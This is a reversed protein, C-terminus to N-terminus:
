SARRDQAAEWAPLGIHLSLLPAEDTLSALAAAIRGGLRGDPKLGTLEAVERALAGPEPPGLHSRLAAAAVFCLHVPTVGAKQAARAAGILRDQRSVKRPVDRGVRATTDGLAANGFRELIGAVEDTTGAVAPGYQAQVGLRGEEMAGQVAAAIEPDAVAAHIYRYGKLQGLYAATAHGASYIFLKRRYWARFDAAANVAPLCTWDGHLAPGDVTIRCHPEGIVTMPSGRDAAFRHAVVRDVVAGSFGHSIRTGVRAAVEMRLYAASDERNEFMIVDVPRQAAALGQALLDIIDPLRDAGVATVVLDATALERVAAATDRAPDVARVPVDRHTTTPGDTARVRVVGWGNLDEAVRGRALVVVELGALHAQEAACGLGVRGAGIIVAKM